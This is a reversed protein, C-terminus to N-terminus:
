QLNYIQDYYANNKIDCIVVWFNCLFLMNKLWVISVLGRFWISTWKLSRTTNKWSLCFLPLFPWRCVVRLPSYSFPFHWSFRYIMRNYKINSKFEKNLFLVQKLVARRRDEKLRGEKADLLPNVLLSDDAGMKEIRIYLDILTESLIWKYSLVILVKYKKGQWRRQSKCHSWCYKVLWWTSVFALQFLYFM